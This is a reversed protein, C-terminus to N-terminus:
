FIPGFYALNQKQVSYRLTKKLFFCLPKEDEGKEVAGDCNYPLPYFFNLIKRPLMLLRKREREGM